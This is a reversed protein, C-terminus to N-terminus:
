VSVALLRDTRYGLDEARLGQVTRALLGAGVVLALSIAIQAVVLGHRLLPRRSSGRSGDKLGRVPDQRAAAFAPATGFVATAAFAALMAFGFVRGDPRVDGLAAANRVIQVNDLLGGIWATALLAVATGALALLLSETLFLRVLRRRGAGMAQRVALERRRRSARALLLNAVNACTLLLLLAVVGALIGVSQRVSSQAGRPLGLGPTVSARWGQVSAHVEELSRRVRELDAEARAPDVGPALRGITRRYTPEGSASTVPRHAGAPVWIDTGGPLQDGLFGAPAVGVVIVPQGNLTVTRGIVDPDGGFDRRWLRRSIVAVTAESAIDGEDEAFTRGLAPRVGLVDFFNATVVAGDVRRPADAGDRAYNLRLDRAGALDTLTEAHTRLDMLISHAATMTSGSVSQLNLAIRALRDPEATGPVPRLLTWNAVNFVTTSAGIGIALTLVAVATFGPSRTLTRLSYRVDNLLDDIM